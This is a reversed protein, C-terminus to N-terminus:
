ESAAVGAAPEDAVAGVLLAGSTDGPETVTLTSLPDPTEPAAAAAAVASLPAPKLALLPPLAVRVPVVVTRCWTPSSAAAASTAAWTGLAATATSLLTGAPVTCSTM